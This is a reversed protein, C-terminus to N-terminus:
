RLLLVVGLGRTSTEMSPLVLLIMAALDLQLQKCVSLKMLYRGLSDNGAGAAFISLSRTFGRVVADLMLLVAASWPWFVAVFSTSCDVFSVTDSFSVEFGSFM